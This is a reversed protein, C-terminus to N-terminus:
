FNTLRKENRWRWKAPTIFPAPVDRTVSVQSLKFQAPAKKEPVSDHKIVVKAPAPLKAKAAGGQPAATCVNANHGPTSCKFCVIPREAKVYTPASTSAQPTGSAQKNAKFLNREVQRVSVKGNSQQSASGKKADDKQQSGRKFPRPQSGPKVEAKKASGAAKSTNTSSM